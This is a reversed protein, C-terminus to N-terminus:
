IFFFFGEFLSDGQKMGDMLKLFDEESHESATHSKKEATEITIIEDMTNVSGDYPVLNFWGSKSLFYYDGLREEEELVKMNKLVRENFLRGKNDVFDLTYSGFPTDHTEVIFNKKM